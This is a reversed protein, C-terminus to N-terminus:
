SDALEYLQDISLEFLGNRWKYSEIVELEIKGKSFYQVVREWEIKIHIVAFM